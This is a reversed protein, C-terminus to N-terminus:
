KVQSPEEKAQGENILLNNIAYAAPVNKNEKTSVDAYYDMGLIYKDVNVSVDSKFKKNVEKVYEIIFMIKQGRTLKHWDLISVTTGDWRAEKKPFFWTKIYENHRYEYPSGKNFPESAYQKSWGIVRGDQVYFIITNNSNNSFVDRFVHWENGLISHPILIRDKEQYIDYLKDVPMGAYVTGHPTLINKSKDQTSSDSNYFEVGAPARGAFLLAASISAIIVFLIIKKM